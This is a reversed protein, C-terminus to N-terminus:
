EGRFVFGVAEGSEHSKSMRAVSSFSTIPKEWAQYPTDSLVTCQASKEISGEHLSHIDYQSNGVHKTFEFRSRRTLERRSDINQNQLPTSWRSGNPSVKM